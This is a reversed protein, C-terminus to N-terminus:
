DRIMQGKNIIIKIDEIMELVMGEEMEV